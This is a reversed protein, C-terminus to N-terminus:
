RHALKQTWWITKVLRAKSRPEHFVFLLSEKVDIRYVTYETGRRLRNVGLM